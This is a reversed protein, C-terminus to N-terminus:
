GHVGEDRPAIGEGLLKKIIGLLGLERETPESDEANPEGRLEALRPWIHGDDPKMPVHRNENLRGMADKLINLLRPDSQARAYLETIAGQSGQDGKAGAKMLEAIDQAYDKSYPQGGEPM